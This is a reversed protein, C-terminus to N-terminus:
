SLIRNGDPTFVADLQGPSRELAGVQEGQLNWIRTIGDASTTLIRQSDPSFRVRDIEAGAVALPQSRGDAVTWIRATRDLSVTGIRQGDPSFQVDIISREHGTLIRSSSFTRDWIRVTEGDITAFRTSDPSFTLSQYAGAHHGLSAGLRSDL